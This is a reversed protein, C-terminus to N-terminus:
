RATTVGKAAAGTAETGKSLQALAVRRREHGRDIAEFSSGEAVRLNWARRRYWGLGMLAMYLVITIVSTYKFTFAALGSLGVLLGSLLVVEPSKRLRNVAGLAFGFFMSGALVGPMRLDRYWPELWTYVNTTIPLKVFPAISKWRQEQPVLKLPGAFTARGWTQPNYDGFILGRRDNPPWSRNKSEVLTGFAPIGSSAYVLVSTFASDRLQANVIRNMRPDESGTKGLALALGQFIALAVCTVVVAKLLTSSQKGSRGNPNTRPRVLVVGVVWLICIFVNTRQLTSVQAVVLYSLVLLRFLLSFSKGRVLSPFATLVFCLPGLYFLLKGILPFREQYSVETYASTRLSTPDNVLVSLGYNRAITILYIAFGISFAVLLIGFIKKTVLATNLIGERRVVSKPRTSAVVVVINFGLVSCIMLLWAYLSTPEYSLLGSGVILLGVCWGVNHPVAAIVSSSKFGLSAVTWFGLITAFVLAIMNSTM